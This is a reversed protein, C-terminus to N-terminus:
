ICGKPYVGTGQSRRRGLGACDLDLAQSDAFLRCPSEQLFLCGGGGKFKGKGGIHHNPQPMVRVPTGQTARMRSDPFSRM